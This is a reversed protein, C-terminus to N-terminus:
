EWAKARDQALDAEMIEALRTLPTEWPDIQATRNRAQEDRSGYARAILACLDPLDNSVPIGFERHAPIDSAVVPLGMARAQGIGLNYGEWNSLNVYLDAAAYLEIMEADSVNAFVRVGSREVYAIDEPEGRGALAFIQSGDLVPESFAAQQSLEIYADIGKYFREARGFRCVNLVVFCGEFGFKRRLAERRSAWADSWAALHSNGNRLVVADRRYQQARIAQSITFVRAAGPACARKEWDIEERAEREAFLSPTPEGHDYFYVLPRKALYRTLTFYPPTHILICDMGDRVAYEALKTVLGLPVRTCGTYTIDRKGSPGGIFVEWGRARLLAAQQAVVMAVGSGFDHTWSLILVRGPGPSRRWPRVVRPPFALPGAHQLSLNPSYSPDDALLAAHRERVYILERTNRERQEPTCDVGRSASEHHYFLPEAVYLNRYGAEFVDICLKVDNFAVHLREEFGGVQEFLSRRLALCAGTVSVMERTVDIRAAEAADVGHLRHAGVLQIGLVTGGHQVTDDPYLLQAGVAGIEPRRAFAVLRRLWNRRNVTMDNNLFILIEADSARAGDNCVKAFNFAGPSPVVALNPLDSLSRFYAITEDEVSENDVITIGFRDAPYDTEALISDICIKLLGLRDRTPIVIRVSPWPGADTEPETPLVTGPVPEFLDHASKPGTGPVAYLLYPVRFIGVPDLGVLLGALAGATDGNLASEAARAVAARNDANLRIAALPGAYALRKMFEPAMAPKFVPRGGHGDEALVHDAYAAEARRHQLSAALVYAAHPRLTVDTHYLVVVAGDDLRVLAATAEGPATVTALTWTVGIQESGTNEAERASRGIRLGLVPPLGAEAADARIRDADTDTLTDYDVVWREFRSLRSGVSAGEPGAPEAFRLFHEIPSRAVLAWDPHDNGYHESDFNPGPDRKEVAGHDLFHKLPDLRLRRVDHHRSIYWTGDFLGSRALLWRLTETDDSQWLKRSKPTDDALAQLFPPLPNKAADPRNELYKRTSFNPGPDRHERLGYECFHALPGDRFAATEPYRHLYWEGVFLGSARVAEVVKPDVRPVRPKKKGFIM